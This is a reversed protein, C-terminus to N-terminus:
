RERQEFGEREAQERESQERFEEEREMERRKEADNFNDWQETVRQGGM